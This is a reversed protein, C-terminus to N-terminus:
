YKLRCGLTISLNDQDYKKSDYEEEFGFVFLGSISVEVSDTIDYGVGLRPTLKLVDNTKANLWKGRTAGHDYTVGCRFILSRETRYEMGLGLFWNNTYGTPIDVPSQGETKITIEDLHNYFSYTASLSLTLDPDPKYGLGVSFSYPLTLEVESDFKNGAFKVSGDM